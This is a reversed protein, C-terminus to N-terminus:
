PSLSLAGYEACAGLSDLKGLEKSSLSLLGNETWISLSRLGYVALSPCPLVYLSSELAVLELVTFASEDRRRALDMTPSLSLTYESGPRLGSLWWEFDPRLRLGVRSLPYVRDSPLM